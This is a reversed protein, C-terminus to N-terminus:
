HTFRGLWQRVRRRATVTAGMRELYPVMFATVDELTRLYRREASPVHTIHGRWRAGRAKGVTEDLWSKVVFSQATEYPEM